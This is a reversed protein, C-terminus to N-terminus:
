APIVTTSKAKMGKMKMFGGVVLLLVVLVGLIIGIVAGASMGSSPLKKAVVASAVGASVVTIGAGGLTSQLKAQSLGANSLSSVASAAEAASGVPKRFIMNTGSAAQMRRRTFQDSGYETGSAVDVLLLSFQAGSAAYEKNFAEEIAKASSLMATAAEAAVASVQAYRQQDDAVPADPLAFQCMSPQHVTALYYGGAVGEPELCTTKTGKSETCGANDATPDMCGFSPYFCKFMNTTPEFDARSNYNLGQPDMCGPVYKCAGAGQVTVAPDFNAAVHDMCGVLKPVCWTQTNITAKADYNAATEDM